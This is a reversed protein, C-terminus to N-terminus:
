SRQGRPPPPPRDGNGPGAPGRPEPRRPRDNGPGGPGRLGPGGEKEFSADPEGRWMRPIFPFSETLVYYYTGEPYQPTVGFRGNCEDLDGLGEVYEWDQTFAGDYEGPPGDAPRNGEKVRWSPKLKVVDSKPDKPDAYGYPGYIPFGDAAYGILIMSERHEALKKLLGEPIGHYHYAGNPQVHANSSDIGLDMGGTLAEYRWRRDGNWLEATAPDFVVGNLAVGFAMRPQTAIPRELMEPKEPMTFVYPQETIRNPNGRNPFRGTEHDPIGNAVITRVGKEIKMQVMSVLKGDAIEFVPAAAPDHQHDHEPDDHALSAGGFLLVM